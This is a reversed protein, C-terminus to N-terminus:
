YTTLLEPSRLDRLQPQLVGALHGLHSIISLSVLHFSGGLIHIPARNSNSTTINWTLSCCLAITTHLWFWPYWRRPEKITLSAVKHSECCEPWKFCPFPHLSIFQAVNRSPPKLKKKPFNDGGLFQPIKWGLQRYSIRWIPSSFWWIKQAESRWWWRTRHLRADRHGHSILYAALLAKCVHLETSSHISFISTKQKSMNKKKKGLCIESGFDSCSIQDHKLNADQNEALYSFNLPLVTPSSQAATFLAAVPISGVTRIESIHKWRKKKASHSWWPLPVSAVVKNSAINYLLFVFHRKHGMEPLFFFLSWEVGGKHPFWCNALQLIWNSSTPTELFYPTQVGWGFWGVKNMPKSGDRIKLGDMKPPLFDVRNKPQCGFKQIVNSDWRIGLVWVGDLGRCRHSRLVLDLNELVKYARSVWPFVAM